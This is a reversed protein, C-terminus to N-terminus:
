GEKKVVIFLGGVGLYGIERKDGRGKSARGEKKTKEPYSSQTIPRRRNTKGPSEGRVYKTLLTGPIRTQRERQTGAAQYFQQIQVPERGKEIGELEDAELV